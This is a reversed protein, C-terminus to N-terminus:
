IWKVMLFMMDLNVVCDFIDYDYESRL